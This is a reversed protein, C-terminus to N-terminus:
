INLFNRWVSSIIEEKENDTKNKFDIVEKKVLEPFLKEYTLRKPKCSTESVIKECLRYGISSIVKYREKEKEIQAMCFEGIDKCTMENFDM